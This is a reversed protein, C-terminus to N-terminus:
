INIWLAPVIGFDSYFVKYMDKLAGDKCVYASHYSKYADPSRLRWYCYGDQSAFCGQSKAYESVKLMLSAKESEYKGNKVAKASYATIEAYSLLFMKDDTNICAYPNEAYRTSQASNDIRTTLVREKQLLGFATNYFSDNLWARITSQAYNNSYEGDYDFSQADLATDCLLMAQGEKEDVLRWKIPEYLFWYMTTPFYGNNDQYSKETTGEYRPDNSRYEVFYVGRYKEGDYEIDIFWMNDSDFSRNYGYSTWGRSDNRLPTAVMNNLAQLTALDSVKSQPYMGFYVADNEKYFTDIEVWKAYLTVNDEVTNRDFNWACSFDANWWGQFEYGRKTPATPLSATNGSEIEQSPLITGGNCEFTVTFKDIPLPPVIEIWKAYLTINREIPQEKDFLITCDFDLYWGAFEYGDKTTSPLEKLKRGQQIYVSEVALGGQTDFTVVFVKTTHTNDDTNPNDTKKKIVVVLVTALVIALVLVIAVVFIVVKKKNM